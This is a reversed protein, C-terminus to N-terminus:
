DPLSESLIRCYTNLHVVEEKRRYQLIWRPHPLSIIKNFWGHEKNLAELVKFNLGRGICIAVDRNVNWQMHANLEDIIPQQMIAKWNKFEYYNINKGEHLFGLPFVASIFFRSFFVETGGFADIVKYIFESSLEPRSDFSHEIDLKSKLRVPDTFSIGTIGSGFRGPNIGFLMTRVNHDRYFKDLFLEVVKMTEPNTYPNM